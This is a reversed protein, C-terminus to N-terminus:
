GGASVSAVAENSLAPLTVVQGEAMKALSRLGREWIGPLVLQSFVARHLRHAHDLQTPSLQWRCRYRIVCGGPRPHIEYRHWWEGVAPRNAALIGETRFEFLEHPIASLVTSRDHWTGQPTHGVSQFRTGAEAPGEPADLSVLWQSTPSQGGGWELHSRIDALLRYVEVTPARCPVSVAGEHRDRCIPMVQASM